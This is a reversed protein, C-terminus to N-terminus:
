IRSPGMIYRLQLIIKLIPRYKITHTNYHITITPYDYKITNLSHYDRGLLGVRRQLWHEVAGKNCCELICNFRCYIVTCQVVVTCQVHHAQQLMFSTQRRRRALPLPPLSKIRKKLATLLAPFHKVLQSDDLMTLGIPICLPPCFIQQLTIICTIICDKVPFRLM